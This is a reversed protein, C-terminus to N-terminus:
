SLVPPARAQHSYEYRPAPLARDAVTWAVTTWQVSAEGVLNARALLPAVGGCCSQCLLCVDQHRDHPAPIRHNEDGFGGNASSCVEISFRPDGSVWSMAVNTAAPAFVQVALALAFLCLAGRWNCRM